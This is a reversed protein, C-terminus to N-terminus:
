NSITIQIATINFYVSSPRGLSSIVNNVIISYNNLKACVNNPTTEYRTLAVGAQLTM